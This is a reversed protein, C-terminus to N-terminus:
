LLLSCPHARAQSSTVQAYLPNNYITIYLPNIVVAEPNEVSMETTTPCAKLEVTYWYSNVERKVVENNTTRNKTIRAMSVANLYFRLTANIQMGRSVVSLIFIKWIIRVGQKRTQSNEKQKPRRGM